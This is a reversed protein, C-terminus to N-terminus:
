SVSETDMERQVLVITDGSSLDQTKYYNKFPVPVMESQRREKDTLLARLKDNGSMTDTLFTNIIRALSNGTNVCKLKIDMPLIAPIDKTGPADFHPAKSALGSNAIQLHGVIKLNPRFQVASTTYSLQNIRENQYYDRMLVIISILISLVAIINSFSLRALYRKINIM